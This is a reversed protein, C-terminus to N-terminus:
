ATTPHRDTGGDTRSTRPSQRFSYIYRWIKKVMPYGCWIRTKEVGFTVTINRRSGSGVSDDFAPNEAIPQRDVSPQQLAFFLQSRGDHLKGCMRGRMLSDIVSFQAQCINFSIVSLCSADRPREAVAHSSIKIEGRRYRCHTTKRRGRKNSHFNALKRYSLLM